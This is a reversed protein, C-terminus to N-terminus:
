FRNPCKGQPLTATKLMKTQIVLVGSHSRLKWSNLGVKKAEYGGQGPEVVCFQYENKATWIAATTPPSWDETLACTRAEHPSFSCAPGSPSFWGSVVSIIPMLILLGIVAWLATKASEKKDKPAFLLIAAYTMTLFLLLPVLYKWIMRSVDAPRPDAYIFIAILLVGAGIAICIGVKRLSTMRPTQVGSRSLAIATPIAIALFFIVALVVMLYFWISNM